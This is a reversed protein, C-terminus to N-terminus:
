FPDQVLQYPSAMDLKMRAIKELISKILKINEISVALHGGVCAM